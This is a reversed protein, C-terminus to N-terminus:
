AAKERGAESAKKQAILLDCLRNAVTWIDSDRCLDDVRLSAFCMGNPVFPPVSLKDDQDYIVHVTPM